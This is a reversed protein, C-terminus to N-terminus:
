KFGNLHDIGRTALMKRHRPSDLSIRELYQPYNDQYYKMGANVAMEENIFEIRYADMEENRKMWAYFEPYNPDLAAYHRGHIFPLSWDDNTENGYLPRPANCIVTAGKTEQESVWEPKEILTYYTKM